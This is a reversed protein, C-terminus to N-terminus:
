LKILLHNKKDLEDAKVWKAYLMYNSDNVINDDSKNIVYFEHKKTCEIGNIKILNEKKNYKLINLVEEFNGSHTIVMDGLEIDEITKLGTTTHILMKPTFCGGGIGIRVYNCGSNSLAEYTEPNAVNGAMIILNNGHKIKAERILNHLKLMGGNAIDILVYRKKDDIIDGTCFLDEFEKLSFACWAELCMQKRIEFDINRPIIPHIKNEKFLKYNELGVVSSMPATFLPLMGEDTYPKCQSRSDISSVAAPVISIDKLSYKINPYVSM